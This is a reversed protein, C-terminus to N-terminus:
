IIKSGLPLLDTEKIVQVRTPPNSDLNPFYQILRLQNENVM